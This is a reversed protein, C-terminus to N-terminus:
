GDGAGRTHEDKLDVNRYEGCAMQEGRTEPWCGEMCGAFGTEGLLVPPLRICSRTKDGTERGSKVWWRCTACTAMTAEGM